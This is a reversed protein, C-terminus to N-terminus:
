KANVWALPDVPKGEHRIEFYLGTERNGGTNGVTAITEGGRVEDGVQKLLADNNAYVSLYDSGHDVILLNGFGRMWEAFVIRGSAISHVEGGAGARIFLGKWTSGEQRTGGFRNSVAGRTPLPLSGKMKALNGAFPAAPPAKPPAERRVEPAPERRVEPAPRSPPPALLEEGPALGTSPAERRAAEQAQRRALEQRARERRREAEQRQAERRQEELRAAREEAARAAIIKSLREILQSLRQEDRQLRGIERRQTAIQESLGDLTAQRNARQAQLKAHEEQQRDQASALQAAQQRTEAALAKQRQLKSEIDRLLQSRARGVAEMYYLDRALQHPDDGNLFLQLADPNGRLYQRHLLKGLQAQQLRLGQELAKAEGDLQGLKGQLADIREQLRHLERQTSSIAQESEQLQDASERRAGEAAGMERRLADIQSRLSKLDGQKDAVEGAAVAAADTQEAKRAVAPPPLMLLASLLAIGLAAQRRWCAALPASAPRQIANARTPHGHGAPRCRSRSLSLALSLVPM